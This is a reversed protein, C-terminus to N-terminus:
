KSESDKTESEEASAKKPESQSKEAESVAKLRRGQVPVSTESRAQRHRSVLILAVYLGVACLSVIVGPILTQPRYRLEITHDGAEVFVGMFGIDATQIEAPEGDVWVTWGDVNPISLVLLKDEEVSLTGTIHNETWQDVELLEEQRQRAFDRYLRHTDSPKDLQDAIAEDLDDRTLETLDTEVGDELVACYLLILQQEENNYEEFVSRSVYSDFTNGFSLNLTNEYIVIDDIRTLQKYFYPPRADEDYEAIVYKYGTLTSLMLNDGVGTSYKSGVGNVFSEPYVEDLFAHTGADIDTYYSSDHIGFYLPTCYTSVGVNPRIGAIRYLGSDYEKLYEVAKNVASYYGLPDEQMQAYNETATQVSKTLTVNASHGLELLSVCLLLALSRTGLRSAQGPWKLWLLMLLWVVLFLIVWRIISFNLSTGGYITELCVYFFLIALVLGTVLLGMKHFAGNRIGCQLGYAAMVIMMIVIWLTSIRYSRLGLEENRIFANFIDVFIPFVMYAGAAAIGFAVLRKARKKGLLIGQPILFLCGIGCYFLPRELYNLAGSYDDFIGTVNPDFLSFIASTLISWDVHEFLGLDSTYSVTSSFRATTFMSWSFGILIVGWLLIGLLYLGSCSLLFPVYQKAPKKAYFYRVTAYIALLLGYLYLYFIGLCSGLLFIVPPIVYWKKDQFYCETCWLILAAIYCEDALFVWHGRLIIIGCFAYLLSMNCCIFPSFKLKKLFLFMFVAAFVMKIVQMWAFGVLVANEGFCIGALVPLLNLPYLLVDYSQVSGFGISFTWWTLGQGEQFTRVYNMYTPLYQSFGDIVTYLYAANGLLFHRYLIVSIWLAAIATLLLLHDKYTKRVVFIACGGFIFSALVASLAFINM